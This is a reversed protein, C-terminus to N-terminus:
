TVPLLYYTIPFLDTPKGAGPTSGDADALCVADAQGGEAAVDGGAAGGQALFGHLLAGDDEFVVRGLM